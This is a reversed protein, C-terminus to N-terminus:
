EIPQGMVPGMVDKALYDEHVREPVLPATPIKKAAEGYVVVFRDATCGTRFSHSACSQSNATM